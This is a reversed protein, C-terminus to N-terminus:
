VCDKRWDRPACTRPTRRARDHCQFLRCPTGRRRHTGPIRIQRQSPQPLAERAQRHRVHHKLAGHQLSGSSRDVHHRATPPPPNPPSAPHVPRDFTLFAAVCNRSTIRPYLTTLTRPELNSIQGGADRRVPTETARQLDAQVRSFFDSSALGSRAHQSLAVRSPHNGM